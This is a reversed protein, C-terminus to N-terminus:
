HDIVRKNLEKSTQNQNQNHSRQLQTMLLVKLYNQDYGFM